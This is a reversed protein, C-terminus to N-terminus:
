SKPVGFGGLLLPYGSTVHLCFGLYKSPSLDNHRANPEGIGAQKFVLVQKRGHSQTPGEWLTVSKPPDKTAVTM